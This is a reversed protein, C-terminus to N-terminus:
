RRSAKLEGVPPTWGMVQVAYAHPVIPLANRNYHMLFLLHVHRLKDEPVQEGRGVIVVILFLYTCFDFLINWFASQLSPFNWIM